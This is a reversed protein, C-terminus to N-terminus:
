VRYTIGQQSIYKNLTGRESEDLEDTIAGQLSGEFDGTGWGCQDFKRIGYATNLKLFDIDNKLKLFINAIYAGSSSWNENGFWEPSSSPLIIRNIAFDCGDFQKQIGDAWARYQSNQYTQKQGEKVKVEIEDEQEKVTQRQKILEAQDKIRKVFTYGIYFAIGIGGIAVVGKSWTPLEKYYDFLKNAM